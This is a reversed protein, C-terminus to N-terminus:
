WLLLMPFRNALLIGVMTRLAPSWLETPGLPHTNWDISRMLAAMASDGPFVERLLTDNARPTAEGPEGLVAQEVM